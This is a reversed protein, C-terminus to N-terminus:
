TPDKAYKRPDRNVGVEKTFRALQEVVRRDAAIQGLFIWYIGHSFRSCIQDDLALGGLACSKCIGGMGLMGMNEAILAGITM